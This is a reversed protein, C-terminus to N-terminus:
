CEKKSKNDERIHYLLSCQFLSCRQHLNPNGYYCDVCSGNMGDQGGFNHCGALLFLRNRLDKETMETNSVIIELQEKSMEKLHKQQRSDGM